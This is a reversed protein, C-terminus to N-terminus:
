SGHETEEAHLQWRQLYDVARGYWEFMENESQVCHPSEPTLANMYGTWVGAQYMRWKQTDLEKEVRRRLDDFLRQRLNDLNTM